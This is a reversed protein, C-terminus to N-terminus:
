QTRTTEGIIHQVALDFRGNPLRNSIFCALTQGTFTGVSQAIALNAGLTECLGRCLALVIKCEAM